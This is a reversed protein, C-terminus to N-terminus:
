TRKRGYTGHSPRIRRDGIQVPWRTARRDARRRLLFAEVTMAQIARRWGGSDDGALRPIWVGRSRPEIM